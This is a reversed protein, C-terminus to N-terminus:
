RQWGPREVGVCGTFVLRVVDKGVAYVREAAGGIGPRQGHTVAALDPCPGLDAGTEVDVFRGPLPAIYQSLFDAFNRRGAPPLYTPLPLSARRRLLYLLAQVLAPPPQAVGLSRVSFAPSVPRVVGAHLDILGCARGPLAAAGVLLASALLAASTQPCWAQRPRWAGCM